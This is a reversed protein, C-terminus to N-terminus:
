SLIECSRSWGLAGTGMGCSRPSMEGLINRTCALPRARSWHMLSCAELFHFGQSWLVSVPAIDPVRRGMGPDFSCGPEELGSIDVHRAPVWPTTM